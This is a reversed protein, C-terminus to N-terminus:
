SAPRASLQPDKSGKRLSCVERWPLTEQISRRRRPYQYASREFRTWPDEHDVTGRFRADAPQWDIEEAERVQQRSTRRKRSGQSLQIENMEDTVPRQTLVRLIRTHFPTKKHSAPEHMAGRAPIGRQPISDWLAAASGGVKAMQERSFYYAPERPDTHRDGEPYNATRVLDHALRLTDEIIMRDCCEPDLRPVIRAIILEVIWGRPELGGHLAARRVLARRHIATAKSIEPPIDLARPFYEAFYPVLRSDLADRGRGKPAADVLIWSLFSGPSVGGTDAFVDEGGWKLPLGRSGYSVHEYQAACWMSLTEEFGTAASMAIATLVDSIRTMRRSWDVSDLCDIAEEARYGRMAKEVNVSNEDRFFLDPLVCGAGWTNSYV